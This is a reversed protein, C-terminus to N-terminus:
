KKNEKKEKKPHGFCSAKVSYLRMQEGLDANGIPQTKDVETFPISHAKLFSKMVVDKVSFNASEPLVGSQNYYAVPDLVRSNIGIVNGMKDSLPGGSNGHQLTATIQIFRSDDNMGSLAGITGTTLIGSSSLQYGLGFGFALVDDGVRYTGSVPFTAITPPQYDIKIVALDNVADTFLTQGRQQTGDPLKVQMYECDKVVHNNTMIHGQKSIFFGTGLSLERVENSVSEAKSGDKGGGSDSKDDDISAEPLNLYMRAEDERLGYTFSVKDGSSTKGTGWGSTKSIARFRMSATMGDDCKIAALGVLSIVNVSLDANLYHYTGSCIRGKSNSMAIDGSGLPLVAVSATGRYIEDDKDFTALVPQSCSWVGMLCVVLALYRLM